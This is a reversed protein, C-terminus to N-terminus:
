KSCINKIRELWQKQETITYNDPYIWCKKRKQYIPLHKWNQGSIISTITRESYLPFLQFIEKREKQTYLARIKIVDLETVIAKKNHEGQQNNCMWNWRCYDYYYDNNQESFVEPMIHSWADGRFVVRFRSESIKNQFYKEWVEHVTKYNRDNYINRMLKVDDDTLIHGGNNEGFSCSHCYGINYGQPAISNYQNIWYDERENMEEASCEEIVSFKFNDIGYKSISKDILQESRRCHEKWRREIDMAQGIYYKHTILNTICYIGTM